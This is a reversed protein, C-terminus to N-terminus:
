CPARHNECSLCSMPLLLPGMHGMLVLVCSMWGEPGDDSYLSFCLSVCLGANSLGVSGVVASYLSVTHPLDGCELDM